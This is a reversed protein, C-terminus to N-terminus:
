DLSPTQTTLTPMATVVDHWAVVKFNQNGLGRWAPAGDQVVLMGNPFSKGVGMATVDLGDTDGTQQGNFAIQFTGRYSHPPSRDFLVYSDNGQSSAVLYGAEPNGPPAYIALGEVDAMLHINASLVDSAQAILTGANSGDPDAPFRWIGVDEEGVYLFGLADDAVCGEPQSNVRLTRALSASFATDDGPTLLWQEVQGSKDTAIAYLQQDASQYFCFGYTEVETQTSLPASLVNTLEATAPNLELVHIKGLSKNTAGVIVRPVRQGQITRIDVNNAAGLPTSSLLQGRLDYVNLGRVKNTGIILSQEPDAANVWIAPDDAADCKNAVPKTESLANVTAADSPALGPTYPDYFTKTLACRAEDQAVPIQLLGVCLASVAAIIALVLGVRRLM